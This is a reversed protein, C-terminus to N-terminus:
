EFSVYVGIVNGEDDTKIKSKENRFSQLLSLIQIPDTSKRIATKASKTKKNVKSDKVEDKEFVSLKLSFLTEKDSTDEEDFSFIFRFMEANKEVPDIGTSNMNHTEAYRQFADRFEQRHIEHQAQTQEEIQDWTVEKLLDRFQQDEMDVALHHERLSDNDDGWLVVVANMEQNSYRVSHIKDTWFYAM